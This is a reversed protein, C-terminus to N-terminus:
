FYSDEHPSKDEDWCLYAFVCVAYNVMHVGAPKSECFSKPWPKRQTLLPFCNFLFHFTVDWSQCARDCEINLYSTNVKLLHKNNKPCEM